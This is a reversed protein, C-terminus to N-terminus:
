RTLRWDERIHTKIAEVLGENTYFLKYNFEWTYKPKEDEIDRRCFNYFPLWVGNQFVKVEGRLGGVVPFEIKIKLKFDIEMEMEM